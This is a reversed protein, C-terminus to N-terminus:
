FLGLRQSLLSFGRQPHRNDCKFGFYQIRTKEHITESEIINKKQLTESKALEIRRL